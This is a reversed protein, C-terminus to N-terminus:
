PSIRAPREALKVRMVKRERGRYLEIPVSQGPRYGAIAEGLDDPERIPRGAARTIIDGGVEYEAVQFRVTKDGAKLGAKKAPGGTVEQVWAGRKVPLDFREVLQPFLSVTQVGLYAYTAEGKDRLQDLSRKVTEVPVAFGVGEGGGGTSRIQSNVGVVRGHADVLPGGSNGHNIAADTQIAGSISFSTLSEITRDLASVVGVSLSQKEGFPSGIAAVPSGVTLGAASGFPLPTLSLGRPEVRLLAIDANPDFGVIKASVRNGDAFEVYVQRARQLNGPRGSTVVHANTAIEGDESVVFGSGQAATGEDDGRLARLPGDRLVSLVSVVGPAEREYIGTPDFSTGRGSSEIVKVRTREVTTPRDADADAGSSDDGGCAALAATALLAAITAARRM